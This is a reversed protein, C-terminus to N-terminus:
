YLGSPVSSMDLVLPATTATAAGSLVERGGLDLLAYHSVQGAYRVHLLDHVPMPYATFTAPDPAQVGLTLCYPDTADLVTITLTSDFVCGHDDIATFTYAAEGVSAPTVVISNCDPATTTIDAGSWYTSDCGPGYSPTFSLDIGGLSPDFQLEWSCLFGNDAAWLDIARFRWTGNLPCGLLADWSGVAEYTDPVLAPREPEGALQTTNLGAASNDAWNGNTATPSWCYNWCAGPFPLADDLDNAAGLYTGGGGQQHLTLEIGNPCILQLVLDGMFSHEMDVCIAVLDDPSTVTTGPEFGAVTIDFDISQGVDDPLFAGSDYYGAYSSWPVAEVAAILAFPSGLCAVTDASTFTFAPVTSVQVLLDVSNTSSCGNADTVVLSVPYSGPAAFVHELVAETTTVEDATGFRWTYNSITQGSSASSGSGDFQLADGICVRAPSAVSMTAAATPEDCPINCNFSASFTGTGIANSEFRLTLCGTANLATASVVLGLLENGTYNGLSPADLDTGDFIALVDWSGMAGSQDLDFTIFNFTIIGGPQDPCVTLTFGENNAYGLGQEGGSDFLVGQCAQVTGNSMTLIVQATTCQVVLALVCLLLFRM